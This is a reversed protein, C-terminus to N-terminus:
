HVLDEELSEAPLSTFALVDDAADRLMAEVVPFQKGLTTAIVDPQSHVHEADPQALITRVARRV